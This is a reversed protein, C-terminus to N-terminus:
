RMASAGSKMLMIWACAAAQGAVVVDLGRLVVGLRLPMDCGSATRPAGHSYGRLTLKAAYRNELACWCVGAGVPEGLWVNSPCGMGSSRGHRTSAAEPL